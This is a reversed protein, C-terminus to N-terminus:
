LIDFMERNDVRENIHAQYKHKYYEMREALTRRSAQVRGDLALGKVHGVSRM